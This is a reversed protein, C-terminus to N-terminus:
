RRGGGWRTLPLGRRYRVVGLGGAVVLLAGGLVATWTTRGFLHTLGTVLLAAGIVVLRAIM